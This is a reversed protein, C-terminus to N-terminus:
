FKLLRNFKALGRIERKVAAVSLENLSDPDNELLMTLRHADRLKDPWDVSRDILFALVEKGSNLACECELWTVSKEPGDPGDAQDSPIWGYRHAVIVVIVDCRSVRSLCEALPPQGSACFYELMEPQFGASLVVDRAVVRYTKLDECTSSISALPQSM